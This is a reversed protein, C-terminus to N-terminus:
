SLYIGKSHIPLIQSRIINFGSTLTRTTNDSKRNPFKPSAITTKVITTLRTIYGSVWFCSLALLAMCAICPSIASILFFYALSLCFAASSCIRSIFSDPTLGAPHISGISTWIGTHIANYWDTILSSAVAGSPKRSREWLSYVDHDDTKAWNGSFLLKRHSSRAAGSIIIAMSTPADIHICCFIVVVGLVSGCCCACLWIIFQIIGSINPNIQMVSGLPRATYQTVDVTIRIIRCYKVVPHPPREKENRFDFLPGSIFFLSSRIGLCFFVSVASSV